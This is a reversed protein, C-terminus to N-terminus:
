GRSNLPVSADDAINVWVHVHPTGRFYWVFTPGELRWNDYEGETIQGDKYFTLRCKDLGGNKKLCDLVEDQDDKRFPEILINLTKQLEKKQDESLDAAAIGPIMGKEGRFGVAAEAPRRPALAKEKQKDDLMKFVKNAQLAQPWFVNDPHGPKENFGSAAHGYFIPGGFAVHEATDGDARLTMHRGTMVMQFKDADNPTGFIAISQQNGWEKGGTDDKLQKLFKAKWEPNIVGEWVSRILDFQKKTFFDSDIHPKTVQWNNSVHTRLIGRKNATDEYDWAFCIEKKQKDTLSEYLARVATEAASKRTPAADARPVAFLPVGLGAAAAGAVTTRLFDRRSFNFSFGEECDPCAIPQKQDMPM